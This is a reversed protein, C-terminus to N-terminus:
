CYVKMTDVDVGLFIIEQMKRLDRNKTQSGFRGPLRLYTHSLTSVQGQVVRSFNAEFVSQIMLGFKRDRCEFDL